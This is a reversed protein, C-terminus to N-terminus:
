AWSQFKIGGAKSVNLIVRVKRQLPWFERDRTETHWSVGQSLEGAERCRFVVWAAKWLLRDRQTQEQKLCHPSCRCICNSWGSTVLLLLAQSSILESCPLGFYVLFLLSNKGQVEFGVAPHQRETHMTVSSPAPMSFCPTFFRMEGLSKFGALSGAHNPAMHMDAVQTYLGPVSNKAKCLCKVYKNSHFEWGTKQLFVNRGCNFVSATIITLYSQLNQLFLWTTKTWSFFVHMISVGEDSLVLALKITYSASKAGGAPKLGTAPWASTKRPFESVCLKFKFQFLFTLLYFDQEKPHSLLIEPCM